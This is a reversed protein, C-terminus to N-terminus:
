CPFNKELPAQTLQGALEIQVPDVQVQLVPKVRIPPNHVIHSTLEVKLVVWCVQIQLAPKKPVYRNHVLHWALQPLHVPADFAYHVTQASLEYAKLLPNHV